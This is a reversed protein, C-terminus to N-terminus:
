VIKISMCSNVGSLKFFHAPLKQPNLEVYNRRDKRVLYEADSLLDHITILTMQALELLESPLDVWGSQTYQPDLNVVVVIINTMDMSCKAIASSNLDNDM